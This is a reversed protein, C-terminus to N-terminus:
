QQLITIDCKRAYEFSFNLCTIVASINKRQWLIRRFENDYFENFNPTMFYYLHPHCYSRIM